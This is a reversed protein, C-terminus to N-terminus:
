TIHIVVCRKQKNESRLGIYPLSIARSFMQLIKPLCLMNFLKRLNFRLYVNLDGNLLAHLWLYWMDLYNGKWFGTSALDTVSYYIILCFMSVLLSAETRLVFKWWKLSAVLIHYSVNIFFHKWSQLCDLMRPILFMKEHTILVQSAGLDYIKNWAWSM